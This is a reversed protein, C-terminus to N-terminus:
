QGQRVAIERLVRKRGDEVDIPDFVPIMASAARIFEMETLHIKEPASPTLIRMLPAFRVVTDLFIQDLNFDSTVRNPPIVKYIAGGDKASSKSSTLFRILDSVSAFNGKGRQRAKMGFQWNGDESLQHDLARVFDSSQAPLRRYLLPIIQRNQEKVSI